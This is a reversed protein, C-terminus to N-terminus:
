SGVLADAAAQAIREFAEPDAAAAAQIAKIQSSSVTEVKASIDVRERYKEPRRAKLLFILATTDGSKASQLAVDELLDTGVEIADHWRLAFAENRHREDYATRVGVGAAKAAAAVSLGRELAEIFADWRKEPTRLSRTRAM